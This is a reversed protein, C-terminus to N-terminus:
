FRSTTNLNIKAVISMVKHLSQLRCAPTFTSGCNVRPLQRRGLVILRGKGSNDAMVKDVWGSGVIRHGIPVATAPLLTYVSNNKLSAVKKDSATKWELKAPLTVVQKLTNPFFIGVQLGKAPHFIRFLTLTSTRM